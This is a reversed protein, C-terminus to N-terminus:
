KVRKRKKFKREYHEILEFYEPVIKKTGRKVRYRIKSNSHLYVQM